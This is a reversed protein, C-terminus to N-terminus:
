MGNVCGAWFRDTAAQTFTIRCKTVPAKGTGFTVVPYSNTPISVTYDTTLTKVDYSAGNWDEVTTITSAKNALTFALKVGNGTHQESTTTSFGFGAGCGDTLGM